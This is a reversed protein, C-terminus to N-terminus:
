KTLFNNRDNIFKDAQERILPFSKYLLLANQKICPMPNGATDNFGTWAITCSALVDLTEAELEEATIKARNGKALRKNLNSNTREKYVRSDMGLLTITRKPTVGDEATVVVGNANEVPMVSGAEAATRTDLDDMQGFVNNM